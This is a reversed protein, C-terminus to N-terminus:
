KGLHCRLRINTPGYHETIVTGAEIISFAVNAFVNETMVSPLSSVIKFTEACIDVNDRQIKGQNILHLVKWQGSPTNNVKWVARSDTKIRWFEALITTYNGELKETDSVFHFNATWWPMATLNELRFVGPKQRTDKPVSRGFSNHIRQLEMSNTDQQCLNRLRETADALVKGYLNCRVCGPSECKKLHDNSNSTTTGRSTFIYNLVYIVSVTFTILLVFIELHDM